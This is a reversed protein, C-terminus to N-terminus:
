SPDGLLSLVESEALIDRLVYDKLEDVSTFFRYGARNAAEEIERPEDLLVAVPPSLEAQLGSPWALDLVARPEGTEEDVLEYEVEPEPLGKEAMWEMCELIQEEEDTPAASRPVAEVVRRTVDEPAEEAMVEGHLLGELFRNAAGALLERRAALFERYNEAQWLKRDMPIWQSELAGPYREAVEEFYEQPPRDSIQLNTEMTQFAFNALANVESRSYGHRYLHGRPFIHHLHLNAYRGLMHQSLEIGSGWDKACMRKWSKRWV